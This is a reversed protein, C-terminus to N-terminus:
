PPHSPCSRFLTHFYGQFHVYTFNCYLLHTIYVTLKSTISKFFNTINPPVERNLMWGSKNRSMTTSHLPRWIFNYNILYPHMFYRFFNEGCLIYLMGNDMHGLYKCIIRLICHHSFKPMDPMCSILRSRNWLLDCVHLINEVCLICPMGSQM